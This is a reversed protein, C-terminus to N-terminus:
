SWLMICCSYVYVAYLECMCAAQVFHVCRCEDWFFLTSRKKEKAVPTNGLSSTGPCSGSGCVICAPGLHPWFVLGKGAPSQFGMRAGIRREDSQVIALPRPSSSLPPYLVHCFVPPFSLFFLFSFPSLLIGLFLNQYQTVCGRGCVGGKWLRLLQFGLLVRPM